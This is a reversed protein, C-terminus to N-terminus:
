GERRKRLRNIPMALLGSTILLLIVSVAYVHYQSIMGDYYSEAAVSLINMGLIVPFLMLSLRAYGFAPEELRNVEKFYEELIYKGLGKGFYAFMGPIVVLIILAAIPIRYLFFMYPSIVITFMVTFLWLMWCTHVIRLQENITTESSKGALNKLLEYLFKLKGVGEEIEKRGAV